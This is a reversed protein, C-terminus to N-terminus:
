HWYKGFEQDFVWEFRLIFGARGKRTDEAREKRFLYRPELEVFLWRRAFNRRYLIGPGYAETFADPRTEGFGLLYWSLLTSDNIFKNLAVQTQWPVGPEQEDFEFRSAFRVLYNEDIKQDLEVTFRSGYGFRDLWFVEERFRLALKEGFSFDHKLRAGLRLRGGSRLGLRYNLDFKRNKVADLQLGVEGNQTADERGERLLDSQDERDTESNVILNLREKTKPLLLKLRLRLKDRRSESEEFLNSHRLRFVSRHAEYDVDGGGLFGDLWVALQDVQRSIQFHTYEFSRDLSKSTARLLQNDSSSSEAVSEAVSAPNSESPTNALIARATFLQIVICACLILVQSQSLPAPNVVTQARPM